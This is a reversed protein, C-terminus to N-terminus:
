FSAATGSKWHDRLQAIHLSDMSRTMARVGNWSHFGPKESLAGLPGLNLVMSCNYEVHARFGGSGWPVGASGGSFECPVGASGGRFGRPVGASGGRFSVRFGRPVGRPGWASGQPARM